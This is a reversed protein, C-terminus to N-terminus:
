ADVTGGRQEGGPVYIPAFETFAVAARENGSVTWFFRLGSLALPVITSILKGTGSGQTITQSVSGGSQNTLTITFTTRGLDRSVLRFKKVAKTHRSDGFVVPQTISWPSESYNSFDIYGNTANGFSLLLGPWPTTGTLTSPSWGQQYITGILDIIRPVGAKYFEGMCLISQQYTHRAWNSEDFNYVWVAVGPIILHYATYPIGNISTSIYGFPLLNNVLALDSFIFKTAGTRKTTPNLTTSSIVPADGIPTATNGNFSYINDKGVYCAQEEGQWALSYPCVCGRSRTTLPVFRFPPLSGTPIIQSIGLQHMAYGTQYLKALGNIPGLDNLLDIAGASFSTWDTPDGAGTWRVRQVFANGAEVTNAVVLHTDLEMMYKAPVANGNITNGAGAIGDWGVVKDVGQSFLLQNNCVSWSFLQTATGSLPTTMTIATWGGLSFQLLRTPTIVVQIHAGTKNYFDAIGLINEAGIGPFVPLANFGWRTLVESEKFIMNEVDSFGLQEVLDLNVETQIGGFPGTIAQEPFEETLLQKRDAIAPM